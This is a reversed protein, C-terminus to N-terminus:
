TKPPCPNLANSIPSRLQGSQIMGINPLLQNSARNWRYCEKAIAEANMALKKASCAPVTPHSTPGVNSCPWGIEGFSQDFNLFPWSADPTSAVFM